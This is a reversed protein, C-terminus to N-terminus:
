GSSGKTGSASILTPCIQQNGRAFVFLGHQLQLIQVVTMRAIVFLRHTGEQHRKHVIFMQLVMIQGFPSVFPDNGNM